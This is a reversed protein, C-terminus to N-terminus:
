RMSGILAQVQPELAEVDIGYQSKVEAASLGEPLNDFGGLAEVLGPRAMSAPLSKVGPDVSSPGNGTQVFRKSASRFGRVPFFRTPTEGIDGRRIQMVGDFRNLGARVTYVFFFTSAYNQGAVDTVAFVHEGSAPDFFGAADHLANDTSTCRAVTSTAPRCGRYQDPDPTLDVRDFKVIDGYYPYAAFNPDLSSQRPRTGLDLVVQWEGQMKETNNGLAFNHREIPITRGGITLRARTETDFVISAAGGVGVLATPRGQYVCTLCQGNTYGDLTASWSSNLVMPGAGLFFASTRDTEYGYVLIVLVNDQIEITYGRGDEAPNWWLGSEPTFAAAGRAVLSMALMALAFKWFRM